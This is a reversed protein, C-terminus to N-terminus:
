TTEAHAAPPCRRKGSAYSVTFASPSSCSPDETEFSERFTMLNNFDRLIKKLIIGLHGSKIDMYGECFRCKKPYRPDNKDIDPIIKSKGPIM